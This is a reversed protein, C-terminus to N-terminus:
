WKIYAKSNKKCEKKRVSEGFGNDICISKARFLQIFNWREVQRSEFTVMDPGNNIGYCTGLGKVKPDDVNCRNPVDVEINRM